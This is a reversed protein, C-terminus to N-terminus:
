TKGGKNNPDEQIVDYNDVPITSTAVPDSHCTDIDRAVRKHLHVTRVEESTDYVATCSEARRKRPNTNLDPPQGSQHSTLDKTLNEPEVITDIISNDGGCTDLNTEPDTTDHQYRQEGSRTVTNLDGLDSSTLHDIVRDASPGATCRDTRDERTVIKELTTSQKQRAECDHSSLAYPSVFVKGCVTCTVM